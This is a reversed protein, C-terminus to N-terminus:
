AVAVHLYYIRRHMAQEDRRWLIKRNKPAGGVQHGIASSPLPAGLAMAMNTSNDEAVTSDEGYYCYYEAYWMNNNNSGCVRGARGSTRSSAVLLLLYRM